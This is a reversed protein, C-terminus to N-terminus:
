IVATIVSTVIPIGTGVGPNWASAPAEAGTEDGTLPM